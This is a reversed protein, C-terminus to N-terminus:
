SKSASSELHEKLLEIFKDGDIHYDNYVVTRSPDIVIVWPTGGTRYNVMTIPYSEGDATGPDHGMPIPLQYRLQLERVASRTNIAFGEFVTQVAAVAVREDDAFADVVKKLTPFGYKHCGPCWNQFCKLYVWKGDVDALKFSSPVGDGDIWFGVELEPAPKGRIGFRSSARTSRSSLLGACGLAAAALGVGAGSLWARRRVRVAQSDDESM